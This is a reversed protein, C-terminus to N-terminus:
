CGSEKAMKGSGKFQKMGIFEESSTPHIGAAKDFDEKTGNLLFALAYGQVVEGAHPGLYHLGVLLNRNGMLFDEQQCNVQKKATSGLMPRKYVCDGIAFIGDVSTSDDENCIIKGNNKIKLNIKDLNLRKTQAERGIALIITDFSEENLYSQEQKKYYVKKDSGIQLVIKNITSYKIFRIGHNKYHTEIKSAIEQDFGRLIKSRVMVSVNYGFSNLFGATELAVYSAGVILTKNPPNEQQFLDDSTIVHQPSGEVDLYKPRSGVAIIIFKATVKEIDGNKYKLEIKNKEIISAFANYYKVEQNQLDIKYQWSTNKIYNQIRSILKKWEHNSKQDVDGYGMNVYQNHLEGNQAAIHMFKKAISGVNLNTGGLGWKNGQPSPYVFDAIAGKAGFQCAEQAFSLGGCGGGIVFFDYDCKHTHM